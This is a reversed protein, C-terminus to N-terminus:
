NKDKKFKLIKKIISDVIANNIEEYVYSLQQNYIIGLTNIKRTLYHKNLGSIEVINACKFCQILMPCEKYQHMALSDENFNIDFTEKNYSLTLFYSNM